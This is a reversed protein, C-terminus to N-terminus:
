FPPEDVRESNGGEILPPTQQTPLANAPKATNNWLLNKVREARKLVPELNEACEGLTRTFDMAVGFLADITTQDRNVERQLASLKDSIRDRKGCDSVRQNVINMITTLLNNIQSKYDDELVVATGAEVINKLGLKTGLRGQEYALHDGFRGFEHLLKEPDRPLERVDPIAISLELAAVIGGMTSMFRREPDYDGIYNNNQDVNRSRDLSMAREYWDWNQSLLRLFAEERDTPLGRYGLEQYNM